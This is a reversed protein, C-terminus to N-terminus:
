LGAAPEHVITAPADSSCGEEDRLRRPSSKGSDSVSNSDSNDRCRNLRL